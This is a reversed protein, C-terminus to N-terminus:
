DAMLGGRWGDIEVCLPLSSGAYMWWVPPLQGAEAEGVVSHQWLLWDVAEAEGVVSHQWLLWDVRATDNAPLM